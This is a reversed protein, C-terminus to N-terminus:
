IKLAIIIINKNASNSQILPFIKHPKGHNGIDAIQDNLLIVIVGRAIHTHTVGLDQFLSISVNSPFTSCQFDWYFKLVGAANNENFEVPHNLKCTDGLFIADGLYNTFDEYSQFKIGPNLAEFIGQKITGTIRVEVGSDLNLFQFKSYSESRNHAELPM